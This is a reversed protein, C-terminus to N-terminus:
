INYYFYLNIFMTIKHLVNTNQLNHVNYKFSVLKFNKWSFKKLFIKELFNKWSFKKLFIKKKHFKRLFFSNKKLSTKNLLNRTKFKKFTNILDKNEIWNKEKRM